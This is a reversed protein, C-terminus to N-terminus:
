VELSSSEGMGLLFIKLSGEPKPLIAVHTAISFPNVQRASLPLSRINDKPLEILAPSKDIPIGCLEGQRTQSLILFRKQIHQTASNQPSLKQALNVVTVTQGEFDAIGLSSDKNETIPPCNIVKFIVSIPLAFFHNAMEFVLVKLLNVESTIHSLRQPPFHSNPM